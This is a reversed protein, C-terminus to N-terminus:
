FHFDVPVLFWDEGDGNEIDKLLYRMSATGNELDYFYSHSGWEDGLLALTKQLGYHKMDFFDVNTPVGNAALFNDIAESLNYSEAEDRYSELEEVRNKKVREITEFFKDRDTAFSVTNQYNETYPDGTVFRGGGVIFWDYWDDYPREEGELTSKVSDSAFEGTDSKIAIYHLVHM